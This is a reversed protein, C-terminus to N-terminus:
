SCHSAGDKDCAKFRSSFMNNVMETIQHSEYVATILATQKDVVSCLLSRHLKGLKLKLSPILFLLLALFNGRQFLTVKWSHLYTSERELEPEQIIEATDKGNM